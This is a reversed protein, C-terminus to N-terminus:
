SGSRMSLIDAFYMQDLRAPVIPSQFWTQEVLRGSYYSPVQSVDSIQRFFDGYNM